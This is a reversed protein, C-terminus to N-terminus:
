MCVPIHAKTVVHRHAKMPSNQANELTFFCATQAKMICLVYCVRWLNFRQRVRACIFLMFHLYARVVNEAFWGTCISNIAIAIEDTEFPHYRTDQNDRFPLLDRLV